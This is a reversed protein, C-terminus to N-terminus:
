KIKGFYDRIAYRHAGFVAGVAMSRPMAEIDDVMEEDGDRLM